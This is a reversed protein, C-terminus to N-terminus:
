LLPKRVLAPLDHRSGQSDSLKDNLYAYQGALGHEPRRIVFWSPYM